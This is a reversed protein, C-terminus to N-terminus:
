LTGDKEAERRALEAYAVMRPAMGLDRMDRVEDTSCAKMAELVAWQKADVVHLGHRALEERVMFM